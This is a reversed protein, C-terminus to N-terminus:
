LIDEEVIEVAEIEYRVIPKDADNTNEIVPEVPDVISTQGHRQKKLYCFRATFADMDDILILENNYVALSLYKM